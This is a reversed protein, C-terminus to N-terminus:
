IKIFKIKKWCGICYSCLNNSIHRHISRSCMNDYDIRRNGLKKIITDAIKEAAGTKVLCGALIGSTMIRLVSSMMTESGKVMTSVTGVLGGGGILGGILAGIILSYTAHFNKIILIISIALGILAGITSFTVENM